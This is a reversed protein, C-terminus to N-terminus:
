EHHVLWHRCDLIHTLIASSWVHGSAGAGHEGTESDSVKDFRQGNVTRDAGVDGVRTDCLLECGYSMAYQLKEM